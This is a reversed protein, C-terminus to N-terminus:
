DCVGARGQFFELGGDCCQWPWVHMPYKIPTNTEKLLFFFHGCAMSPKNGLGSCCHVSPWGPSYTASLPPRPPRRPKVVGVSLVVVAPSGSPRCTLLPTHM